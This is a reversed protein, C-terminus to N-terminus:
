KCLIKEYYDIVSTVNKQNTYLANVAKSARELISHYSDPSENVMSLISVLEEKTEYRLGIEDGFLSLGNDFQEKIGSTNKGIVLCNSFMAEAVTYGFGESHSPVILAVARSMLELIDSRMGLFEVQDDLDNQSVFDILSKKYDENSTEGAVVLRLHNRYKNDNVYENYAILLDMIGKAEELRGAYLFFDEKELSCPSYTEDLVGDYIVKTNDTLGYRSKIDKTIAICNNKKNKLCKSFYSFSPIPTIGIGKINERIHWVHPVNMIRCAYYGITIPGVNTHVIDPHISKISMCMRIIAILNVVLTYLLRPVFLVYDKTKLLPPIESKRIRIPIVCIGKQSLEQYIGSKDPTVVFPTIGKDIIGELIHLFAKTAGGLPDTSSLVYLVKM